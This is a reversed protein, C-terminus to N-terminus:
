AIKPNRIRQMGATLRGVLARAEHPTYGIADLSEQFGAVFEGVVDTPEMGIAELDPRLTQLMALAVPVAERCCAEVQERVAALRPRLWQEGYNLHEHEDRMVAETIPAAYPDAVPLYCRYAAVAFCEIILCQIVLCPVVDGAADAQAFQAQLPALLRRALGSDPKVGLNRGCGVFDAAHRAEMAGLRLLEDRDAPLLCALRRFHRDALGEGVVVMANIRSYAQCYSPSTFDLRAAAASM